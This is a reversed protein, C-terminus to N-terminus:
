KYEYRSWATYETLIDNFHAHLWRHTHNEPKGDQQKTLHKPLDCVQQQINASVRDFDNTYMKCKSREAEEELEIMYEETRTSYFKYYYDHIVQIYTSNVDQAELLILLRAWINPYITLDLALQITHNIFAVFESDSTM